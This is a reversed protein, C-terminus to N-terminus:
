EEKILLRVQNDGLIVYHVDNRSMPNDIDGMATYITFVGKKKEVIYIHVTGWPRIDIDEIIINEEAIGATIYFERLYQYELEM